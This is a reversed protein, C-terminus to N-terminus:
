SALKEELADRKRQRVYVRDSCIIIRVGRKQNTGRFSCAILGGIIIPMLRMFSQQRKKIGLSRYMDENISRAKKFRKKDIYYVTLNKLFLFLYQDYDSNMAKRM